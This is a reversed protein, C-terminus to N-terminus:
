IMHETTLCAVLVIALANITHHLLVAQAIRGLHLIRVALSQQLV